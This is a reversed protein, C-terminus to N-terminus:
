SSELSMQRARIIQIRIELEGAEHERKLKRLLVEYQELTKAVVPHDHGFARERVSLAKRYFVEAEEYSEIASYLRALDYYTTATHPHDVGLNHERIALAERYYPEAQIYNGQLFFNAAKNSLSYARYPHKQGLSQEHITLAREILPQAEHYRGREHFIEVLSNAITAIHPHNMGSISERIRLARMNMEEALDLKNQGQYIKAMMNLTSAIMPDNDRLRQEQIHLALNCYKEAQQYKELSHHLKALGYYSQAVQPDDIGLTEVRINLAQMYYPEAKLYAGEARYLNALNYHTQAIDLHNQGLVQEQIRLARQHFQEAQSYEGTFRNLIGLNNLTHAMDPHNGELIQQRVALATKLLQNAQYYQAQIILCAAAENLLRAAEPFAFQFEDVYAACTYAHPLYRQYKEWTKLESDPFVRNVARTAREAWVRQTERDMGDKLVAQVLRHMSLSKAEWNRRILSYRLLLEITADLILADNAAASLVEGLETTGTIIIEEPIAEPNLFALLRLLDAAAVSEQEVQQFSLSWTAVISDPHDVPFRGRRLLLERRHTGYLNLYQSLGCRTEEIYAGAQDLALPLGDLVTAIKTALLCNEESTEKLSSDPPLVRARRLLFMVSEDPEMKDVEISQAVTGLVRVRIMADQVIDDWVDKPINQAKKEVCRKMFARCEYWQGSMSDRKMEEVVIRDNGGPWSPYPKGETM